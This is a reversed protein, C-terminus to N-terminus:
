MLNESKFQYLKSLSKAPSYGPSLAIVKELHHQANGWEEQYAFLKAMYFHLLWNNNRRGKGELKIIKNHLTDIIRELDTNECERTEV